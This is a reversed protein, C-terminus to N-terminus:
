GYPTCCMGACCLWRRLRAMPVPTALGAPLPYRLAKAKVGEADEYSVVKVQPPVLLYSVRNCLGSSASRSQVNSSAAPQPPGHDLQGFIPVM